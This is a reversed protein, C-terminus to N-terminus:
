RSVLCSGHVFVEAIAGAVARSQNGWGDIEEGPAAAANDKEALAAGAAPEDSATPTMGITELM